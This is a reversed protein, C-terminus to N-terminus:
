LITKEESEFLRISFQVLVAIFVTATVLSLLIFRLNVKDEFLSKIILSSNIIPVLSWIYNSQNLYNSLIGAFIVALYLPMIYSNAEKMTKAIVGLIVMLSSILVASFVLVLFLIVIKNLSLTIMKTDELM